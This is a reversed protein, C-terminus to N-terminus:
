ALYPTVQSAVQTHAAAIPAETLSASAGAIAAAAIGALVGAPMAWALLRALHARAGPRPAPAAFQSGLVDVVSGSAPSFAHAEVWLKMFHEDQM